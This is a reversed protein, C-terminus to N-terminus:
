RKRRAAQKVLRNVIDGYSDSSSKGRQNEPPTIRPAASPPPPPSRASPQALVAAALYRVYSDPCSSPLLAAGGSLLITQGVCCGLRSLIGIFAVCLAITDIRNAALEATCYEVAKILARHASLLAASKRRENRRQLNPNAANYCKRALQVAHRSRRFFLHHRYVRSRRNTTALRTLLACERRAIEAVAGERQVSVSMYLIHKHANAHCKFCTITTFSTTISLPAICSCTTVYQMISASTLFLLWPTAGRPNGAESIRPMVHVSM